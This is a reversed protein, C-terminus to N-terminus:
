EFSIEQSYQQVPKVECKIKLKDGIKFVGILRRRPGSTDRVTIVARNDSLYFGGESGCYWIENLGEIDGKSTSLGDTGFHKKVYKLAESKWRFVKEHFGQFGDEDCFQSMIVVYGDEIDPVESLRDKANASIATLGIMLVIMMATKKM